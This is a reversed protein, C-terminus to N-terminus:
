AVLWLENTQNNWTYMYIDFIPLFALTLSDSKIPNKPLFAPTLTALQFSASSACLCNWYYNWMAMSNVKLWTIIKCMHLNISYTEISKFDFDLHFITCKFNAYIELMFARGQYLLHPRLNQESIQKRKLTILPVTLRQGLPTLSSFSYSRMWHLFRRRILLFVSTENRGNDNLIFEGRQVIRSNFCLKWWCKGKLFGSM